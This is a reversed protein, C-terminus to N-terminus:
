CTRKCIKVFMKASDSEPREKVLSKGEECVQSISPELPLSGLLDLNYKNCMTQAGGSFSKFIETTHQTLLFSVNCNPCIFMAMNEVVGIIPTNTKLCFSIEKKVDNIAVM